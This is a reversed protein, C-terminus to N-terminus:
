KTPVDSEPRLTTAVIARRASGPRRTVVRGLYIAPDLVGRDM